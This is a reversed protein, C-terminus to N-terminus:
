RGAATNIVPVGLSKVLAFPARLLVAVVLPLVGEVLEEDLHVAEGFGGADDDEGAGVAGVDKVVGEAAGPAEVPLYGDVLGVDFAALLDQENM